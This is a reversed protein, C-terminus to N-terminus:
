VRDMDEKERMAELFLRRTTPRMDPVETSQISAASIDTVPDPVDVFNL